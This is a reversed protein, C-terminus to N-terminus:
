EHIERQAGSDINIMEHTEVFHDETKQGSNLCGKQAKTIVPLFNRYEKYGSIKALEGASWCDQGQQNTKRIREFNSEHNKTIENPAM